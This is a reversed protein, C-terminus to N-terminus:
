KNHMKLGMLICTGCTHDYQRRRNCYVQFEHYNRDLERLERYSSVYCEAFEKMKKEYKKRQRKNM